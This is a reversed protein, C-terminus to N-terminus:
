RRMREFPVEYSVIMTRTAFGSSGQGVINLPQSIVITSGIDYDGSGLILTDGPSAANVYTQIDGDLPVYVVNGKFWQAIGPDPYTGTLDGGAIGTVGGRAGTPGTINVGTPGTPSSGAPSGGTPGTITSAPGTLGPGTPSGGTPGTTRSAPGTLAPGTQGTSGTPGTAGM